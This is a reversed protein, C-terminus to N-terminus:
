LLPPQDGAAHGAGRLLVYLPVLGHKVRMAAAEQCTEYARRWAQPDTAALRGCRDWVVVHGEGPLWSLDALCHGLAEWSHGFWLPFRLARAYADFLGAADAVLVGDVPYLSWGAAVLERRLAGVHATSRWRYVGPERGGTVVQALRGTM